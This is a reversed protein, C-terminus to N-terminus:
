FVLHQSVLDFLVLQVVIQPLDETQGSLFLHVQVIAEAHRVRALVLALVVLHVHSLDEGNEHWLVGDGGFVTALRKRHGLTPRRRRHRLIRGYSAIIVRLLHLGETSGEVKQAALAATFSM